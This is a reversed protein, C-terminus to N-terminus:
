QLYNVRSIPCCGLNVKYVCAETGNDNGVDGVRSRRAHTYFFKKTGQVRGSLLTKGDPDSQSLSDSRSHAHGALRRRRSRPGEGALEPEIERDELRACNSDSSRDHAAGAEGLREGSERSDGGADGGGTRGAARACREASFRLSSLPYLSRARRGGGGARGVSIARREVAGAALAGHRTAGSGLGSGTFRRGGRAARARESGASSSTQVSGRRCATCM